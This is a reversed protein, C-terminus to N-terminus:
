RLEWSYRVYKVQGGLMGILTKLHSNMGLIVLYVDM